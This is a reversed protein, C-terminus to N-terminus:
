RMTREGISCDMVLTHGVLDITDVIGGTRRRNVLDWEAPGKASCTEVIRAIGAKEDVLTYLGRNFMPGYKARVEDPTMRVTM